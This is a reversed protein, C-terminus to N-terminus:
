ESDSDAAKRKKSKKVKKSKKSSQKSSKKSAKSETATDDTESKATSSEVTKIAGLSRAKPIGHQLLVQANCAIAEDRKLVIVEDYEFDLKIYDDKCEDYLKALHPLNRVSTGNIRLLQTNLLYQCGVNVQCDLSQSLVVVQEDKFTKRGHLVRDLLKVPAHEQFDEGFEARLYPESLCVFVLGAAVIYEPMRRHERMPVLLPTQITGLPYTLKHLSNDRWITLTCNDGVFKLSKLYNFSIREGARYAVTGDNAIGHDDFMTIVDGKRLGAKTNAESLPDVWKVLIGTQPGMKMFQRLSPNEMGQWEFGTSCFGTYCKNKKYDDLFHMVVIWPIIYGINEAEASNLSQFAVGVCQWAANLVPGGSNGSNIAADIQVGLLEAQSHCYPQMEVRSVVGSTVSINEGGIPFGVVTVPDQLSPLAGPELPSSFSWFSDDDVTLLALDCENGISLVRALHKQDSGRKKIKVVTHNEVSHANTLILRGAIVFGSSTSYNQRKMQWPLSYNPDCHTCYIKVISDLTNRSIGAGIEEDSSDAGADLIGNYTSVHPEVDTHTQAAVLALEAKKKNNRVKEVSRKSHKHKKLEPM